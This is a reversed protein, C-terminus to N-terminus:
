VARGEALARIESVKYRKLGRIMVPHLLGEQELRRITFRSCTLMRATQAQRALLPEDGGALVAEIALDCEKRIKKPATLMREITTM